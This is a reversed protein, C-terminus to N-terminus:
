STPLAVAVRAFVFCFAAFCFRLSFVVLRDWLALQLQLIKLGFYKLKTHNSRAPVSRKIIQLLNHATTRRSEIGQCSM